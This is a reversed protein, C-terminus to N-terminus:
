PAPAPAPLAAPTPLPAPTPVPPPAKLKDQLEKVIKELDGKEAQLKTLQRRHTSLASRAETLEERSKALDGLAKTLETERADGQQKFKAADGAAMKLMGQLEEIEAKDAKAQAVLRALDKEAAALDSEAKVKAANADALDAELQQRDAAGRDCGAVALALASVALLAFAHNWKKM